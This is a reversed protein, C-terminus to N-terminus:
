NYRRNQNQLGINNYYYRNRVRQSFNGTNNIYKVVLWVKDAPNLKELEADEITNKHYM